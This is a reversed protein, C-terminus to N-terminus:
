SEEKSKFHQKGQCLLDEYMILFECMKRKANTPTNEFTFLNQNIAFKLKKLQVQTKTKDIRFTIFSM